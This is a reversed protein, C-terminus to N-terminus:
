REEAARRERILNRYFALLERDQGAGWVMPVRNVHLGLGGTTSATQTLGVETGYYIIPPGPLRIQAAAARRLADKDGNALQLFRDMDHNDIFTPLLLDAPFFSLHRDLFRALQAESWTRRAYTRRLADGTHFRACWRPPRRLCAPCRARRRDRWLL